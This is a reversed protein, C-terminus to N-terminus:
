SVPVEERPVLESSCTRRFIGLDGHSGFVIKQEFGHEVHTQRGLLGDGLHARLGLGRALPHHVGQDLGAAELRRQHDHGLRGVEADLHDVQSVRRVSSTM